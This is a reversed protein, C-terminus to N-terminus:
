NVGGAIVTAPGAQPRPQGGQGRLAALVSDRPGDLLIRGERIVILRTLIPLLATKHTAVVLTDDARLSEQLMRVIRMEADNDMSATPEDLLWLSSQGLALRTLAIMQKQGGSVGKGGESIEIQLGKPHQAILEFLGTRRAAALIAEDGPDPLGLLLNQRLTGSVLRQEQPLYAIVERSVSPHLSAMDMGGLFVRGENPRYLASMVKLLTSKGSGVPGLLGVKEGAQISLQDVELVTRQMGYAFRLKEVRVDASISQPTLCQEIGDQENPLALIQDLGDIAARAHAWQLLIGPLQVIPTMARNSIITIALLGGMTLRNSAVLYAGAAVLAVYGAQQLLVTLNQSWASYHRIKEDAESVEAVLDKWRGALQWDGHATKISEAGEVTEVLLGNKRNSSIVMRAAQRRIGGQFMIGAILALPLAILPVAVVVGGIMAIVIIFFVAFPIDALVFLSTSTLMGRVTEFGKVQAALTGVTTPRTELRVGQMREFFWQSLQKDIDLGARDVVHARVQKLLWELLIAMLVGATLVWLTQFGQNPIVRDYVQMSYLSIGLALLSVVVTALIAEFLSTKHTWVVRSILPLARPVAEVEKRRALRTWVADEEPSVVVPHGSEDTGTFNGDAGMAVILAASEGKRWCLLPLDAREASRIVTPLGILGAARWAGDFRVPAPQKENRELVLRIADLRSRPVRQGSLQAAKRLLEIM